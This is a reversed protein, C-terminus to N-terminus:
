AIFGQPVYTTRLANLQSQANKMQAMQQQILQNQLESSQNGLGAGIAGQQLASLEYPLRQSQIGQSFATQNEALQQGPIQAMINASATPSGADVGALKALRSFQNGYEQSAIEQGKEQIGELINGSGLYGRAVMSRALADQGAKQRAQVSPDNAVASVGGQMLQNLAVQYQARQSAWPDAMGAAQSLVASSGLGGTGGAGAGAGGMGGMGSGGMGAAGGGVTPVVPSAIPSTIAGATGAGGPQQALQAGITKPIGQREALMDYGDDGPFLTRGFVDRLGMGWRNVTGM